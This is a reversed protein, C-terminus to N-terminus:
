NKNWLMMWSKMQTIETTQASIIDNALKKTETHLNPLVLVQQAMTVAAQHHLIMDELFQKESSVQSMMYPNSSHKSHDMMPMHATGSEYLAAFDERNKQAIKEGGNMKYTYYRLMAIAKPGHPVMFCFLVLGLAAGWVLGVLFSFTQM